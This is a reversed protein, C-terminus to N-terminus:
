LTSGIIPDDFQINTGEPKSLMGGLGAVKVTEEYARVSSDINMVAMWQNPQAGIENFMVKYLGPALLTAFPGSTTAHLYGDPSQTIMEPVLSLMSKIGFM